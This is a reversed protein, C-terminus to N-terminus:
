WPWVHHNVTKKEKRPSHRDILTPEEQPTQKHCRPRPSERRNSTTHATAPDFILYRLRAHVFFPQNSTPYPQAFVSSPSCVVCVLLEEWCCPAFSVFPGCIWRRYLDTSTYNSSSTPILSICSSPRVSSNMPARMLVVSPLVGSTGPRRNGSSSSSGSTM